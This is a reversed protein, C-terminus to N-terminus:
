SRKYTRRNIQFSRSDDALKIIQMRSTPSGTATSKLDVRAASSGLREYTGEAIVRGAPSYIAVKGDPSFRAVQANASRWQGVWPNTLGSGCGGMLPALMALACGLVLSCLITPLKNRLFM